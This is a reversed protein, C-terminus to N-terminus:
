LPWERARRLAEEYLRPSMRLRQERLADLIPRVEDILGRDKAQVVLGVTGIYRVITSRLTPDRQLLHRAELDDLLVAARSRSAASLTASEGRGLPSYLTADGEHVVALIGAARADELSAAGPWDPHAAVEQWVAATVRVPLPLGRLVDLRDIRALAILPSADAYVAAEAANM